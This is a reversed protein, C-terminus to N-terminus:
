GGFILVVLIMYILGISGLIAICIGTVLIGKMAESRAVPNDGSKALKTINIAMVIFCTVLAFGFFINIATQYQTIFANFEDAINHM